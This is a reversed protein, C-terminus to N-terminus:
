TGPPTATRLYPNEGIEGIVWTKMLGSTPPPPLQSVLNVRGKEVDWVRSGVGEEEM